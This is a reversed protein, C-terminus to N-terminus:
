SIADGFTTLISVPSTMYSFTYLDGRGGGFIENFRISFLIPNPLQEVVLVPLQKLLFFNGVLGVLELDWNTPRGSLMCSPLFM